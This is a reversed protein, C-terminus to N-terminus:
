LGIYRSFSLTKICHVLEQGNGKLEETSGEVIKTFRSITQELSLNWCFIYLSIRKSICGFICCAIVTMCSFVHRKVNFLCFNYWGSNGTQRHFFWLIYFDDVKFSFSVLPDRAKAAFRNWQKLLCRITFHFIFFIFHFSPSFCFSHFSLSSSCLNIIDM